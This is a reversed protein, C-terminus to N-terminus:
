PIETASAGPRNENLYTATGAGFLATQLESSMGDHAQSPRPFFPSDYFKM